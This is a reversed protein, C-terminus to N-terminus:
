SSTATAASLRPVPKEAVSNRQLLPCTGEPPAGHRAGLALGIAVLELGIIKRQLGVLVADLPLVALRDGRGLAILHGLLDGLTEIAFKIALSQRDPTMGALETVIKQAADLPSKESNAPSSM